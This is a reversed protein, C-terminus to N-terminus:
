NKCTKTLLVESDFHLFRRRLRAILIVTQSKNTCSLSVFTCSNEWQLEPINIAKQLSFSCKSPQMRLLRAALVHNTPLGSQQHWRIKLGVLMKLYKKETSTKIQSQPFVPWFLCFKEKLLVNNEKTPSATRIKDTKLLFVFCSISVTDKRLFFFFVFFFCFPIQIKKAWHEEAPVDLQKLKCRLPLFCPLVKLLYFWWQSTFILFDFFSLFRRFHFLNIAIQNNRESGCRHSCSFQGNEKEKRKCDIPNTLPRCCLKAM